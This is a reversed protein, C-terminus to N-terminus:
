FKKILMRSFKWCHSCKCMICTCPSWYFLELYVHMLFVVVCQWSTASVSPTSLCLPIITVSRHIVPKHPVATVTETVDDTSPSPTTDAVPEDTGQTPTACVQWDVVVDCERGSSLWDVLWRSLWLLWIVIWGCFHLPICDNEFEDSSKVMDQKRWFKVIIDSAMWSSYRQCQCVFVWMGVSLLCWRRSTIIFLSTYLRDWRRQAIAVRTTIL